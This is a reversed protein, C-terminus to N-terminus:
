DYDFICCCQGYCYFYIEFQQYQGVGYGIVCGVVVVFEYVYLM